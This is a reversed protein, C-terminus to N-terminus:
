FDITFAIKVMLLNSYRLHRPESAIISEYIPISQQNLRLYPFFRMRFNSSTWHVNQQWTVSIFLFLWVLAFKM